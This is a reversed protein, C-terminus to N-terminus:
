PLCPAARLCALAAPAGSDKRRIVRPSDTPSSGTSEWGSVCIAIGGPPGGAGAEVGLAPAASTATASGCLGILAAVASREYDFEDPEASEAPSGRPPEAMTEVEVCTAM